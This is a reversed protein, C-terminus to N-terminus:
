INKQQRLVEYVVVAAAIAANLSEITGEMPIRVRLDSAEKMEESIGGGENGIIIATDRKFDCDWYLDKGEGCTAVTTVGDEKLSSIVEDANELHRIPVRFLSGAAARVVKPSYPDVTGKVLIIQSFGAGDATRILTGLNGPDQIRDLVLTNSFGSDEKKLAGQFEPIMFVGMMGRGNDVQSLRDFLDRSLYYVDGSYNLGGPNDEDHEEGSKVILCDMIGGNDLADKILLPGEVIFLGEKERYKRRLLSTWLKYNNNDQSTITKIRM